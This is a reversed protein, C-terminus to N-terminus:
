PNQNLADSLDNLSIAGPVNLKTASVTNTVVVSGGLWLEARRARRVCATLVAVGDANGWVDAIAKRATAKGFDIPAYQLMLRWADRKGSTVADFKTIDMAAFMDSATMAENWADTATEANCWALLTSDDRNQLATVIAPTTEARLANVILLQQTHNM